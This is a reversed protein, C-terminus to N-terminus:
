KELYASYLVIAVPRTGEKNGRLSFRKLGKNSGIHAFVPEVVSMCHTKIECHHCQMLRGEFFAKLNGHEDTGTHRYRITEGAPCPCTMSIPDFIFERALLRNQKTTTKGTTKGTLTRNGYRTKHDTFKEDRRRFKNDPIYGDMNQEYLYQMNSENAYGTDATVVTDEQFITNNIGLRPYCAKITNLVPPLTHHERGEGFAQAHIIIQHKKDTAAIGTYGQITGKSTSMKASDNDTINSKVEKPKKGQGMRPSEANLFPDIRDFAKNLTDISQQTRQLRIEDRSESQDMKKHENLHYRIHRKIKDRKQTREKFTGSWETAANTTFHPVSDYSLAKFIIHTKCYWPIEGSSTIGEQLQDEYNLAIMATQKYHYPKFKPMNM